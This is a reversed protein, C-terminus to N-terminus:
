MVCLTLVTNLLNNFVNLLMLECEGSQIISYHGYTTLQGHMEGNVIPKIVIDDFTIKDNFNLINLVSYDLVSLPLATLEDAINDLMFQLSIDSLGDFWYGSGIDSHNGAFWVETVRTDQNFLTPQLWLRKEDLALIHIAREIHPALINNEFVISSAPFSEPDLDLSGRTVAVTDFVSLFKIPMTLHTAFM